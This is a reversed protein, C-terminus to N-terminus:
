DTGKKMEDTLEDVEKQLSGRDVFNAELSRMITEVYKRRATELEAVENGTFDCSEIKETVAIGAEDLVKELTYVREKVVWLEAMVELMMTVIQDVASEDFFGPRKGKQALPIDTM